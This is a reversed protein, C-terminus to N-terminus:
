CIRPLAEGSLMDVIRETGISTKLIVRGKLKDSLEGIIAAKKGMPHKKLCALIKASNKRDVILVAKGENAVYLPDIGLLECAAKVQRSVPIKKDEIVIGRGTAQTIENLTSALGGRTPDRMFKIASTTKVLPLLLGGLAQCDSKINLKLDLNKRRALVALGHLGIEGTIIIQDGKSINEVSMPRKSIIKGVGSSNIFIKDCAGKEVVKFDGTVVQVGSKKANIALSDIIKELIKMDLGEEVILGLSLYQPRAGMMVLDNVTGCIALKGIDAGPFFLPSVVFSDTSFAINGNLKLLASDGLQNLIANGLKPLLVKEILGHM